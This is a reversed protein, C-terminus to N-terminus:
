QDADCSAVGVAALLAASEADSNARAIPAAARQFQTTTTRPFPVTGLPSAAIFTSLMNACCMGVGACFRRTFESRLQARISARSIWLEVDAPGLWVRAM